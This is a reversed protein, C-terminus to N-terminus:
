ESQNHLKTNLVRAMLAATGFPKLRLNEPLDVRSYVELGLQKLESLPTSDETSMSSICHDDGFILASVDDPIPRENISAMFSFVLTFIPPDTKKNTLLVIYAPRPESGEKPLDIVDITDADYRVLRTEHADEVRAKVGLEEETERLLCQYITEGDELKGGVGVVGATTLAGDHDWRDPNQIIFLNKGEYKIWSGTAFHCDMEDVGMLECARAILKDKM